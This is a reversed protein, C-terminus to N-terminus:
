VWVDRRCLGRAECHKCVESVGQAPLAAGAHMADFVERLREVNSAALVAINEVTIEKVEDQDVSLYGAQAVEGGYLTAYAPLQVDEGPKKQEARLKAPDRTKYDILAYEAGDAAARADVRDIRGRLTLAAGSALALTVERDIEAESWRWGQAERQAQWDLYADALDDWRLRWARNLASRQQWRALEDQAIRALEARAEARPVSQLLPHRAHFRQLVAHVFHGFDRKDMEERVEDGQKLGLVYGAFFQYPCKILSQYASVSIRSPLLSPPPLARPPPSASVGVSDHAQVADLLGQLVPDRLAEGGYACEHLALLREIFASASRPAGESASQWVFLVARALLMSECLARLQEQVREAHTPLGLQARVRENFFGAPPAGFLHEEDAGVVVLADFARLRMNALQTIVVPSDVSTDLFYASELDHGLWDRWQSFTYRAAHQKIQERREALRALLQQGAADEALAQDVGLLHLSRELLEIWRSLTNRRPGRPAGAAVAASEASAAPAASEAGPAFAASEASAAFVASEVSAASAASEAGSEGLFVQAARAIRALVANAHARPLAESVWQRLQSLGRVWNKKRAVADIDALARQREFEASDASVLPSSLFDFLERYGFESSLADVWRMLVTSAATTSLRWGAEDKALVGARELLARVRRTTLRDQAVIAIHTMGAALWRQIQLVAAQAQSELAPADCLQIWDRAASTSNTEVLRKARTALTVPAPQDGHPALPGTAEPWASALLAARPSDEFSLASQVVHVPQRSAYRDLLDREILGFREVGVVFLPACAEFQELQLRYAALPPLAGDGGDANLATGLRVVLQAEMDLLRGAGLAAEIAKAGHPAYRELEDILALLEDSARWLSGARFWPTGRLADHLLAQRRPEPLVTQALPVSRALAGFTTFRPLLLARAALQALRESIPRALFLHPLVVIIDSLDPMRGAAAELILRATHDVCDPAAIRHTRVGHDTM